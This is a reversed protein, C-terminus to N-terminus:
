EAPLSVEVAASPPGEVPIVWLGPLGDPEIAWRELVSSSDPALLLSSSFPQRLVPNEPPGILTRLGDRLRWSFLGSPFGYYIYYRGDPSLSLEGAGASQNAGALLFLLGAAPLLLSRRTRHNGPGPRVPRVPKRMAGNDVDRRSVACTARLEVQVHPVRAPSPLGQRM